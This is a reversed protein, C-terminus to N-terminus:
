GGFGWFFATSGCLPPKTGFRLIQEDTHKTAGAYAISCEPFERKLMHVTFEGVDRHSKKGDRDRFLQHVVGIRTLSPVSALRALLGRIENTTYHPDSV